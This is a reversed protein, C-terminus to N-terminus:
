KICGLGIVVIKLLMIIYSDQITNNLTNNNDISNTQSTVTTNFTENHVKKKWKNNNIGNETEWKKVATCRKKDDIIQNALDHTVVKQLIINYITTPILGLMIDIFSLHDADRMSVDRPIHFEENTEYDENVKYSKNDEDAKDNDNDNEKDKKIFRIKKKEKRSTEIETIRKNSRPATKCTKVKYFKRIHNKPVASKKPAALRKSVVKLREPSDSEYEFNENNEIKNNVRIKKHYFPEWRHGLSSFFNIDSKEMFSKATKLSQRKLLHVQRLYFKSQMTKIIKIVPWRQFETIHNSEEKINFEDRDSINDIIKQIQDNTLESISNASYVKLYKIKDKDIKEFLKYTKVARQIKRCLTKRSIKSLQLRMEKSRKEYIITIHEDAIVQAINETGKKKHSENQSKSQNQNLLKKETKLNLAEFVEPSDDKNSISIESLILPTSMPLPIIHGHITEINELLKSKSPPACINSSIDSSAKHLVSNELEHTINNLSQELKVVRANLKNNEAKLNTIDIKNKELKEIRAKFEVNEVERKTSEERVQKLLEANKAELEAKKAELESIRQRLSDIESQM